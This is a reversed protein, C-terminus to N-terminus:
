GLKKDEVGEIGGSRKDFRLSGDRGLKLVRVEIEYIKDKIDKISACGRAM